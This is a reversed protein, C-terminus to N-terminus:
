VPRTERLLRAATVEGGLAWCGCYCLLSCLARAAGEAQKTWFRIVCPSGLSLICVVPAYLPGDSHPQQLIPNSKIHSPTNYTTQKLPQGSALVQRRQSKAWRSDGASSSSPSSEGHHGQAGSEKQAAGHHGRGAHVLQHARPERRGRRRAAARGLFRAGRAARALLADAGAGLLGQRRRRRRPEAPPARVAANTFPFLPYPLSLGCSRM